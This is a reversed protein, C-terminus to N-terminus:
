CNLVIDGKLGWRKMIMEMSQILIFKEGQFFQCFLGEVDVSGDEQRREAIKTIQPIRTKRDVIIRVDKIEVHAFVMGTIKGNRDIVSAGSDGQKAFANEQSQKEELVWFEKTSRDDFGGPKFDAYLGGVFGYTQGTTRGNKRVLADFELSGFELASKWEVESLYGENPEHLDPSEVSPKRAGDVAFVGWDAMCQRGEYEIIDFETKVTRGMKLKRRLVEDTPDHMLMLKDLKKQLSEIERTRAFKTVTSNSSEKEAKSRRIRSEIRQILRLFDKSSPQQVRRKSETEGLIHACSFGFFQDGVKMFLGVTGNDKAAISAGAMPHQQYKQNASFDIRDSLLKYEGDGILIIYDSTETTFNPLSQFSPTKEDEKTTDYLIIIVPIENTDHTSDFKECLM